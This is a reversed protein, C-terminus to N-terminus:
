LYFILEDNPNLNNLSNINNYLKLYMQNITPDGTTNNVLTNKTNLDYFILDNKNHSFKQDHPTTDTAFISTDGGINILISQVLHQEGDVKQPM